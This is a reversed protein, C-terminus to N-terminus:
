PLTGGKRFEEFRLPEDEEAEMQKRFINRMTAHYSRPLIVLLTQKILDPKCHAVYAYTVWEFQVDVAM